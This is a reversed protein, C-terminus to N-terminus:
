AQNRNTFDEIRRVPKNRRGKKKLEDLCDIDLLFETLALIDKTVDEAVEITRM